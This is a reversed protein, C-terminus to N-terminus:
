SRRNPAQASQETPERRSPHSTAQQLAGKMASIVAIQLENAKIPKVLYRAIELSRCRGADSQQDASTLMMITSPAVSNLSHIGVTGVAGVLAILLGFGVM